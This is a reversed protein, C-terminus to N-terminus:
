TGGEWNRRLCFERNMNEEEHLFVLDGFVRQEEEALYRWDDSSTAGVIFRFEVLEEGPLDPKFM